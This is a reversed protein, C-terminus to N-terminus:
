VLDRLFRHFKSVERSGLNQNDTIQHQIAVPISLGGSNGWLCRDRHDMDIARFVPDPPGPVDRQVDNRELCRNQDHTKATIVGRCVHQELQHFRGPYSAPELAQLAELGDCFEPNHTAILLQNPEIEFIAEM